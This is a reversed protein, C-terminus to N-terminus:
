RQSWPPTPFRAKGPALEEPWVIVKKGDQWQFMLMKHAIQFGGPDVKFSGFVTNLDMKLIGDRIKDSELSGARRIAEILVQCAGYGQATQYSLDAGPFEKRYSEVFAAAGPYQRAIPVLGGARLTVLEPEWQTAGYVFEAIRGLQEHFRPLDGGVTVAHMRPNIDLDKMQRAIAVSDDFYTAAAVVDPNAAKVRALIASFDTTKRPYAEVVVAQLGRKKALEVAGQAIAKPFLTDEHIVAITRLGRKAAFDILGELYVEAPSLLMFVFKRGKKFISTTAAGAAVMPKRHKETVEAVADTIPSSYPSFVVDVKDQSLLREYVAVSKAVDSQDDEVTLEIKRGLVGGKENAHKVCLQHGRHVTQGLQAYTGTNSFSGGIRLPQQAGATPVVSSWLAVGLGGSLLAHRLLRM